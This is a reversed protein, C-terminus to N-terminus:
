CRGSGQPAYEVCDSTPREIVVAWATLSSLSILIALLFWGPPGSRNPIIMAGVGLLAAFALAFVIVFAAADM